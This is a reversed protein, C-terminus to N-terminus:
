EEIILGKDKLWEYAYSYASDLDDESVIQFFETQEDESLKEFLAYSSGANCCFNDVVEARELLDKWWEYDAFTMMFIEEDENWAFEERNFPDVFTETMDTEGIVYRLEKRQRNVLVEM